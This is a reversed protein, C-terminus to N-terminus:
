KDCTGQLVAQKQRNIGIIKDYLLLCFINMFKSIQSLTQIWSKYYNEITFYLNFQRQIIKIAFSFVCSLRDLPRFEVTNQTRDAVATPAPKATETYGTLRTNGTYSYRRERAGEPEAKNGNFHINHSHQHHTCPNVEKLNGKKKLNVIYQMAPKLTVDYLVCDRGRVLNSIVMDMVMPGLLTQLQLKSM